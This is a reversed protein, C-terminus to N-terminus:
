TPIRDKSDESKARLQCKACLNKPVPASGLASKDEPEIGPDIFRGKEDRTEGGDM